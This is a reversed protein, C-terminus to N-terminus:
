RPTEQIAADSDREKDRHQRPRLATRTERTRTVESTGANAECGSRKNYVTKTVVRDKDSANNKNNALYEKCILPKRWWVSVESM